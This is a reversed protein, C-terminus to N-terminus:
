ELVGCPTEKGNEHVHLYCTFLNHVDITGYGELSLTDPEDIMCIKEVVGLRGLSNGPKKARVMFCRPTESMKWPRWQPEPKIRVEHGHFSDCVITFPRWTNGGARYELEKGEAYAHFLPLLVKVQDPTM